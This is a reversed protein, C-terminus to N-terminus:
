WLKKMFRIFIELQPVLNSFFVIFETFKRSYPKRAFLTKHHFQTTSRGNMADNSTNLATNVKSHSSRTTSRTQDLSPNEFLGYGSTTGVRKVTSRRGRRGLLPVKREGGQLYTWIDERGLSINRREIRATSIQDTECSRGPTRSSFDKRRWGETSLHFSQLAKM